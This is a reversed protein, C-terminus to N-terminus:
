MLNAWMGGAGLDHCRTPTSFYTGGVTLDSKRCATSWDGDPIDNLRASYTRVNQQTCGDDKPKDWSAKCSTDEVFWIGWMGGWGHNDCRNSLRPDGAINKPSVQCSTQWNNSPNTLLRASYQRIGWSSCGDDKITDWQAQSVNPYTLYTLFLCAFTIPCSLQVKFPPRFAQM